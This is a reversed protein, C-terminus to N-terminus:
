ADKKEQDKVLPELTGIAQMVKLHDARTLQLLATANRLIELAEQPTM